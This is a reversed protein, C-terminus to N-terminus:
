SLRRNKGVEFQCTPWYFSFFINCGRLLIGGWGWAWHQLQKQCTAQRIGHSLVKPYKRLQTPFVMGSRSTVSNIECTFRFLQKNKSQTKSHRDKRFWEKREGGGRLKLTTKKKSTKRRALRKASYAECTSSCLEGCCQFRPSRPPLAFSFEGVILTVFLYGVCSCWMNSHLHMGM